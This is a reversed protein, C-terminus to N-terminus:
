CQRPSQMGRRRCRSPPRPAVPVRLDGELGRIAPGISRGSSRVGETAGRRPRRRPAEGRCENPQGRRSSPRRVPAVYTAPVFTTSALVADGAGLVRVRYLGEIGNLIYDYTLTGGATTTVEDVGPEFSGDGKVVSGDPRTVEIRVTCEPAYGGGTMHVTEGPAYDAKDTAMTGSGSGAAACATVAEPPPSPELAADARGVLYSLQMETLPFGDSRDPVVMAQRSWDHLERLWRAAETLADALKLAADPLRAEPARVPEPARSVPASLSRVLADITPHAVLDRFAPRVGNLDEVANAIRVVDLSTAGAAVLGVSFDVQTGLVERVAVRRARSRGAM